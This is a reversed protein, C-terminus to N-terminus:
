PIATCPGPCTPYNNKLRTVDNGYDIAGDKNFDSNPDYGGIQYDAYAAKLTTVDNGYDLACDGNTDGYCFCGNCWILKQEDSLTDWINRMAQTITDGCIVMDVSFPCIDLRVPCGTFNPDVAEGGVLVVGGRINNESIAVNCDKEVIFKLLLGSAKPQNPSGLNPPAFLAGMELTMGNSDDPGPLTDDHDCPDGYPVGPSNVEPPDAETNVDITGPYIYFNPDMNTPYDIKADNSLKIDLGFAVPRNGDSADMKYYVSVENGDADCYINVNALAPSVLFLLTLVFILKKM